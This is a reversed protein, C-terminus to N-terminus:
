GPGQAHTDTHITHMHIYIQTRTHIQIRRHTNTHMHAHARTHINTHTYKYTDTHIHTVGVNPAIIVGQSVPGGLVQGAVRQHRPTVYWRTIVSRWHSQGAMALAARGHRLQYRQLCSRSSAM